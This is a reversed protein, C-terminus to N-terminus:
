RGTCQQDELDTHEAHTVSRLVVCRGKDACDLRLGGLRELLPLAVALALGIILLGNHIASMHRNGGLMFDRESVALSL